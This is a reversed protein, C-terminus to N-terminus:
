LARPVKWYRKITRLGLGLKKAAQLQTLGEERVRKIASINGEMQRNRLSPVGFYERAEELNHFEQTYALKPHAACQFTIVERPKTYPRVRGV